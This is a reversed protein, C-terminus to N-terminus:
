KIMWVLSIAAKTPGFYHKARKGLLEDCDQCIYKDHRLYLYGAGLSFEMAWRRGLPMHYGWSVGAGVASGKYVHNVFTNTLFNVQGINYQGYIAHVGVFHKEFRQCFWYRVEPQVFWLRNIGDPSLKFPNFAVSADITWKAALGIELSINPTAVLGYLANFKLATRPLYQREVLPTVPIVAFQNKQEGVRWSPESEAVPASDSEATLTEPVLVIEEAPQGLLETPLEEMPQETIGVVPVTEPQKAAPIVQRALAEEKKKSDGDRYLVINRDEISYSLEADQALLDLVQSLSLNRQGFDVTAQPDLAHVEFFVKYDTQSMIDDVTQQRTQKGSALLIQKSSVTQAHSAVVILLLIIINLIKRMM